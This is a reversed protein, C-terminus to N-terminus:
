ASEGHRARYSACCDCHEVTAGAMRYRTGNDADRGIYAGCDVCYVPKQYQLYNALEAKTHTTRPIM